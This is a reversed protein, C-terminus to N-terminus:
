SLVCWGHKSLGVMKDPVSSLCFTEDANVSFPLPALVPLSM